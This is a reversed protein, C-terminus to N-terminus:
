NAGAIFYYEENNNFHNEFELETLPQKNKVFSQLTYIEIGIENTIFSFLDSPGTGYYDSAGKGCEFLIIPKNAKLIKKAGKLVGFEGGEVDIKIFHVKEDLPIIEDM